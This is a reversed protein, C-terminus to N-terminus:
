QGIINKLKAREYDARVLAETAKEFESARALDASDELFGQMKVATAADNNNVTLNRASLRASLDDLLLRAQHVRTSVTRFRIRVDAWATKQDPSLAADNVAPMPVPTIAARPQQTPIVPPGSIDWVGPAYAVSNHALLNLAVLNLSYQEIAREYERGDSSYLALGRALRNAGAYGVWLWPQYTGPYRRYADGLYGYTRMLYPTVAPDWRYFGSARTLWSFSLQALQQNLAYDAPGFGREYPSLALFGARLRESDAMVDRATPRARELRTNMDRLEGLLQQQHQALPTAQSPERGSEAGAPLSVLALILCVISTRAV